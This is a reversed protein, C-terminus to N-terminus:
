ALCVGKVAMRRTLLRRCVTGDPYDESDGIAFNKDTVGDLLAQASEWVAINFFTNSDGVGEHMQVSILGPLKRLKESDITWAKLVEDKKGPRAILMDVIVVPGTSSQFQGFFTVGDEFEEFVVM